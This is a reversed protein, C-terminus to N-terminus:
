SDFMQIVSQLEVTDGYMYNRVVAGYAGIQELKELEKLTTLGGAVIVSLGTYLTLQEVTVLDPSLLTGERHVNTYIITNVGFSKMKRGFEVTNYDSVHAWGDLTVMGDRSDISVIIHEAGFHTVAEKVVAPNNVAMTGLVVKDVGLHLLYEIDQISRIGGGAEVPINVGHVIEQIIGDNVTHGVMAGDLDVLHICDAGQKEYNLAMVVPSEAFTEGQIYSDTNLRVSRGNKIDISPFIKM